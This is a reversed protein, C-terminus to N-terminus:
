PYQTCMYLILNTSFRRALLTKPTNSEAAVAGFRSCEKKQGGGEPGNIHPIPHPFNILCGPTMEPM